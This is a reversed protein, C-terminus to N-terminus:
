LIVPQCQRVRNDLVAPQAARNKLTMNLHLTLATTVKLPGASPRCQWGETCNSALSWSPFTFLTTFFVHSFLSARHAGDLYSELNMASCLPPTLARCLAAACRCAPRLLVVFQYATNACPM